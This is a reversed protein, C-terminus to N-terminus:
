YPWFVVIIMGAVLWSLATIRLVLTVLLSWRFQFALCNLLLMGAIVSNLLMGHSTAHGQGLCAGMAFSIVCLLIFLLGHEPSFSGIEPKNEAPKFLRTLFTPM